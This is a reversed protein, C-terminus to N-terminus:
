QFKGILLKIAITLPGRVYPFKRKYDVTPRWYKKINDIYQGRHKLVLHGEGETATVRHFTTRLTLINIWLRAISGAELYAVTMAFDDCDGREGAKLIRYSDMGKDASYRFQAIFEHTQM